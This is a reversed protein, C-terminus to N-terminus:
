PQHDKVIEKIFKPLILTDTDLNNETKMHSKVFDSLLRFNGYISQLGSAFTFAIRNEQEDLMNIGKLDERLADVTVDFEKAAITLAKEPNQDAFKLAKFYCRLITLVTQPYQEVFDARFTLADTILGPADASSYVIHYPGSKATVSGFPEYTVAVDTKGEKLLRVSEKADAPISTIDSFSLNNQSLAYSLFFEELIGPEYAIRKGKFDAVTRIAQSAVMNDAGNSYDIVAVVRQNFGKFAESLIDTTPGARGILKGSVFDKSVDGLSSYRTVEVDLGAEKFYGEHQAIRWAFYGAWSSHGLHIKGKYLPERDFLSSANPSIQKAKNQQFYFFFSISISIFLISFFIVGLWSTKKTAM